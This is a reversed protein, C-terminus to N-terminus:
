KAAVHPQSQDNANSSKLKILTAIGVGFDNFSSQQAQIYQYLPLYLERASPYFLDLIINPDCINKAACYVVTDYFNLVFALEAELKERRVVGVIAATLQKEDGAADAIEKRNDIVVINIRKRYDTFPTNNFQRFLALSEEIRKEKKSEYYQFIGFGVGYILSIAGAVKAINLLLDYSKKGFHRKLRSKITKPRPKSAM